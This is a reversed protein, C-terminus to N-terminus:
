SFHKELQRKQEATATAPTYLAQTQGGDATLRVQKRFNHMNELIAKRNELMCVLLACPSMNEERRLAESKLMARVDALTVNGADAAFEARMQGGAKGVGVLRVGLTIALAMTDTDATGGFVQGFEYRTGGSRDVMGLGGLSRVHFGQPNAAVHRLAAHNHALLRALQVADVTERRPLEWRQRVSALTEGCPAPADKFRWSTMTGRDEPRTVSDLSVTEVTSCGALTFGYALLLAALDISKVDTGIVETGM